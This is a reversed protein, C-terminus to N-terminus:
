LRDPREGGIATEASYRVARGAVGCTPRRPPRAVRDTAAALEAARLDRQVVENLMGRTRPVQQPMVVTTLGSMDWPVFSDYDHFSDVNM